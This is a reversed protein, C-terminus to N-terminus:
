PLTRTRSWYRLVVTLTPWPPIGELSWCTSAVTNRPSLSGGALRRESGDGLTQRGGASCRNVSILTARIAGLWKLSLGSTMHSTKILEGWSHVVKRRRIPKYAHQASREHRGCSSWPKSDSAWLCM